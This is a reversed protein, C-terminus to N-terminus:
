RKRKCAGKHAYTRGPCSGSTRFTKGDCGCADSVLLFVSSGEETYNDMFGKLTVTKGDFKQIDAPLPISWVYM